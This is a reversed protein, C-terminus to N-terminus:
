KGQKINFTISKASSDSLRPLIYWNFAVYILVMPRVCQLSLSHLSLINLHEKWLYTLKEIYCGGNDGVHCM